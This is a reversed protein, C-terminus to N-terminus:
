RTPRVRTSRRGGRTLGVLAMNTHGTICTQFVLDYGHPLDATTQTDSNLHAVVGIVRYTGALSGAAPGTIQVTAGAWEPFAHGGCNMDQAVAPIRYWPTVNVGGNSGHCSYIISQSETGYGTAWLNEVYDVGGPAAARAAAPASAAGTRAATRSAAKAANAAAAAAAAQQQKWTSVATTLKAQAAGTNTSLAPLDSAKAAGRTVADIATNEAAVAATVEDVSVSGNTQQTAAEAAKQAADVVAKADAVYKQNQSATVADRATTITTLVATLKGTTSTYNTANLHSIAPEVGGGWYDPKPKAPAPAKAGIKQQAAELQKQADAVAAKLRAITAEDAVTGEASAAEAQAGALEARAEALRQKATAYRLDLGDAAHKWSDLAARTGTTHADNVQQYALYGTVMLVLGAAAAFGAQTFRWAPSIDSRV